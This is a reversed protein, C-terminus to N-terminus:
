RKDIEVATALSEFELPSLNGISSHRKKSQLLGRHLSTGEALAMRELEADLDEDLLVQLRKM